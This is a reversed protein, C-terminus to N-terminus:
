QRENPTPHENETVLGYLDPRRDAHVDNRPSIQKNRSAYLDITAITIGPEGLRIATIPFGDADIIVSGGVWDVGREHGARDAVAIPLRNSSAAAQVRVIEAPREGVPRPFAPWNVPACLLDAGSLAATRTWEPFEVDYCVMVSLRGFATDVVPPAADGPTFGTTKETDWLHAKRYVARVGTPDVLVASNYVANDGQEPIGFVLVIGHLKALTRFLNVTAGTMTEARSELESYDRFMYGSSALEPLIVINAGQAVASEVAATARSRTAAPDDISIELQCCAVVVESAAQPWVSDSM